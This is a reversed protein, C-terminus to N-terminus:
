VVGHEGIERHPDLAGAPTAMGLGGMGVAVIELAIAIADNM